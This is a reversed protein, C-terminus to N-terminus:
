GAVVRVSWGLELHAGSAADLALPASEVKAPRPFTARVLGELEPGSVGTTHATLVLWGGGALIAGCGALLDPLADVLRWRRRGARGFSPPDAVIGDYRRARRAERGVFATADDVLWRIPRDALGSLEANRRAWAVATRAGDVHAVAAGARAAALTLLGTHAFLNLVTPRTRGAIRRTVWDLNARQEPYLGVGGAATARLEMTLNEFTALWRQALPLEDGGAGPRSWGGGADFRLDAGRWASPDRRPGVASPAPRDVTLSGFRDLRRGDGADLLEVRDGPIETTMAPIM